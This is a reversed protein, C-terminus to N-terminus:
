TRSREIEQYKLIMAARLARVPFDIHWNKEEIEKKTAAVFEQGDHAIVAGDADVFFLRDGSEDVGLEIGFARGMMRALRNLVELVEAVESLM